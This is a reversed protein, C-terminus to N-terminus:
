FNLAYKMRCLHDSASDTTIAATKVQCYVGTPDFEISNSNNYFFKSEASQYNVSEEAGFATKCQEFAVDSRSSSSLQLSYQGGYRYSDLGIEPLLGSDIPPSFTNDLSDSMHYSPPAYHDTPLVERHLILDIEDM